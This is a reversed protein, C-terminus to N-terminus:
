AGRMRTDSRPSRRLLRLPSPLSEVARRVKGMAGPVRLVEDIRRDLFAWTAEFDPSDDEIWCLLTSSYVGALLMRKTYYNFDTATDGAARWIADVTRWLCRLGIGANHPLALHALAARVAERHPALQELRTRVALRIRDRVRLADLDIAELAALMRRDAWDSFLEVAETPGGPFAARAVEAPLGADAAARELAAWTWGDFPVHALAARLIAERQRDLAPSADAPKADATM